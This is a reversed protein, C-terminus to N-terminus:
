PSRRNPLSAQDEGASFAAVALGILVWLHRTDEWSGTLGHYLWAGAMAIALATSLDSMSNSASRAHRIAGGGVYILLAFLSLVGVAGSQAAVNLAVNHADQFQIIRGSPVQFPVDAPALGPGQGLLPYQASTEWASHWTLWRMSPQHEGTLQPASSAAVLAAAAVLVGIALVIRQSAPRLVIEAPPLLILLLALMLVLGGLGTSFTFLAAFCLAALLLPYRNMGPQTRWRYWALATSVLLYNCLMNVNLFFAAVRPYEGPPLSGYHRLFPNSVVENFGAYFLVVGGISATATLAAGFLWASLATELRRRDLLLYRTLFAVAILYAVKLVRPASARQDESFVTALVIALLYGGLLLEFMRPRFTRNRVLVVIAPLSLLVFILDAAILVQWLALIPTVSMLPLAAIYACLLAVLWPHGAKERTAPPRASTSM